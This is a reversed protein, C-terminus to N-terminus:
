RMPEIQLQEVRRGRGVKPFPHFIRPTPPPPNKTNAAARGNRRRETLIRALLQEGTEYARGEKRALDAETPVLRGECAAKLVAARYRKLNAQVRKLAAM